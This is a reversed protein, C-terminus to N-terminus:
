KLIITKKTSTYKIDYNVSVSYEGAPVFEGNDDLRNWFFEYTGIDFNSSNITKVVMGDLTEIVIDARIKQNFTISILTSKDMPNPNILINDVTIEEGAFASVCTLLVMIVMLIVKASKIM